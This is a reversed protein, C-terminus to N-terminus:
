SQYSKCFRQPSQNLNCRQASNVPIPQITAVTVDCFGPPDLYPHMRYQTDNWVTWKQFYIVPKMQNQIRSQLLRQYLNLICKKILPHNYQCPFLQIIDSHVNEVFMHSYQHKLVKYM